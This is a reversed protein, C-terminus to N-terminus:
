LEMVIIKPNAYVGVIIHHSNTNYCISVPYSIGDKESALTAMKKKGERDVQIVTHSRIGCVLVQGTPTVHLGKPGVLQPDTLTSLLTGDMALTILMNQATKVGSTDEYLTKKLIFRSMSGENYLYLATGSTVYLDGQNYSIPFALLLM